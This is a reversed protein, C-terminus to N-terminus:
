FSVDLRVLATRAPQRNTGLGYGAAFLQNAGNAFQLDADSNTVNLIEVGGQATLRGFVLRKRFALNLEQLAKTTIQGDSRDRGAFRILTALPNSVVRGNSLTVTSPGVRPDPATVRTVIPGSWLGSQYRYELAAQVGWPLEVTTSINGVHDRWQLAGTMATGSLSDFDRLSTTSGELAGIGKCNRFRDPQLFSAPDNPIWDGVHCRWQRAYSALAHVRTFSVRSTLSLEDYVNHNYTNNTLQYIANLSEDRYGVFRMGDYIANHDVLLAGSKYLRRLYIAGVSLPKAIQREVAASFEDVYPVRWRDLDVVIDRRTSAAAPTVLATEFSGNADRDYFDTFGIAATGLTVAVESLSSFRRGYYGRVVTTPTLAFAAGLNTGIETSRQTEVNFLQDRSRIVDARVGASVTLRSSANWKNQVYFAVDSTVQDILTASTGEYQRVHFPRVGLAPRAPDILVLEEISRGNASYQRFQDRTHRDLFAGVKMEHQGRARFSATLDFSGTVKAEPTSTWEPRTSGFVVLQTVGTLRGASDLVSSFVPRRPVDPRLMTDSFGKDNYALTGRLLLSSRL